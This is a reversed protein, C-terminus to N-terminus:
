VPTYWLIQKRVLHNHTPATGSRDSLNALTQKITQETANQSKM